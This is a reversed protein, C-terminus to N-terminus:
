AARDGPCACFRYSNLDGPSYFRRSGYRCLVTTAIQNSFCPLLTSEHRLPTVTLPWIQLRKLNSIQRMSAHSNGIVSIKEYFHPSSFHNKFQWKTVNDNPKILLNLSWKFVPLMIPIFLHILLAIVTVPVQNSIIQWLLRCRHYTVRYLYLNAM